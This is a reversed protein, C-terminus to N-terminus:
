TTGRTLLSIVYETQVAPRMDTIVMRRLRHPNLPIIPSTQIQVSPEHFQTYLSVDHLVKGKVQADKVFFYVAHLPQM